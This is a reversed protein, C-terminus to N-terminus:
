VEGLAALTSITAIPGLGPYEGPQGTRNCWVPTFGFKAAGAIDWRNSSVFVIDAPNQTGTTQM